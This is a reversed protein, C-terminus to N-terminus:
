ATKKPKGGTGFGGDDAGATMNVNQTFVRIDGYVRLRPEEYQRKNFSNAKEDV